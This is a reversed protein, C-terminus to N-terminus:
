TSSHTDDHEGNCCLDRSIFVPIERTWEGLGQIDLHFRFNYWGDNGKVDIQDVALVKKVCKLPTAPDTVGVSDSYPIAAMRIAELKVLRPLWPSGFFETSYERIRTGYSPAFWSEGRSTSLCTKIKQPLADLGRVTAMQGNVFYLDHNDDLALDMPLRNVDIKPSSAMVSMKIVFGSKSKSWSPAISLERGDGLENVLVFKDYPDITDFGEIYSILEGLDGIVFHEVRFSWAQQEVAVLDGVFVIAPGLAIFDCPKSGPRMSIMELKIREEHETKMAHLLPTPYAAENVDILRSHTQCMWIGNNISVRQETTMEPDYRAGGPSAAAIHAAVGISVHNESGADSPGATAIGCGSFSCRHAARLALSSRTKALFSDRDPKSKSASENSTEITM